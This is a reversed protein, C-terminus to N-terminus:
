QALQLIEAATLSRDYIRIDDLGGSYYESRSCCAGLVMREDLTILDGPGPSNHKRALGKDEGNVYLRYNLMPEEWVVALHTWAPPISSGVDGDTWYYLKDPPTTINILENSVQNTWLGLNLYPAASQSGSPELTESFVSGGIDDVTIQESPRIWVSYTRVVGIAGDVQVWDDVGDFELAGDATGFRDTTPIAGNVVGDLGNGSVDEANADLPYHALLGLLSECGTTQPNCECIGEGPCFEGTCPADECGPEETVALLSAINCIFRDWRAYYIGCGPELLDQLPCTQCSELLPADCGTSASHSSFFCLDDVCFEGSCSDHDDCQANLCPGAPWILASNTSNGKGCYQTQFLLAAALCPNGIIGRSAERLGSEEPLGIDLACSLAEQTRSLLIAAETPNGWPNDLGAISSQVAAELQEDTPELQSCPVLIEADRDPERDLDSQWSGCPPGSSKVLYYLGTGPAPRDQSIDLSSADVLASRLVTTYNRVHELPGKVFDVDAPLPWNLADPSSATISQEFATTGECDASAQTCLVILILGLIGGAVMRKPPRVRSVTADPPVTAPVIKEAAPDFQM